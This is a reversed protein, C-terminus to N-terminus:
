FPGDEVKKKLFKIVGNITKKNVAAMFHGRANRWVGRVIPAPIPAKAALASADSNSSVGDSSKDLPNQNKSSASSSNIQAPVGAWKSQQDSSSPDSSSNHTDKSMM